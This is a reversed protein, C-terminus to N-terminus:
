GVIVDIREVFQKVFFWNSNPPETVSSTEYHQNRWRDLRIDSYAGQLGRSRGMIIMNLENAKYLNYIDEGRMKAEAYQGFSVGRSVLDGYLELSIKLLELFYDGQYIRGYEDRIQEWTVVPYGFDGLQSALKQPLLACHVIKDISLCKKLYDLIKGQNEMQDVLKRSTPLGFMKAEIAILTKTEGNVLIVIDPTDKSTPRPKPFRKRSSGYISEVLSYETFFQINTSDPNAEIEIDGLGAILSTFIHFNKFNDKCVIMPFVTGTFFREKRNLPLEIEVMDRLSMRQGKVM